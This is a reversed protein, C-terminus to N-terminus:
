PAPPLPPLSPLSPPTSKARTQTDNLPCPPDSPSVLTATKARQTLGPRGRGRGRRGEWRGGFLRGGDGYSYFLVCEAAEGDRGARGTEQHYGELSKPLSYHVVFRM